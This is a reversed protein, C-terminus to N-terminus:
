KRKEPLRKRKQFFKIWELWKREKQRQLTMFERDEDIKIMDLANAHAIDFLYDLDNKWSGQKQLLASSQKKNNRNKKLIEWENFPKKIKEVVHCRLVTPIRAKEWVDMVDRTATSIAAINVQQKKSIKYNM